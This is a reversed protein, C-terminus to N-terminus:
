LTELRLPQPDRPQREPQVDRSGASPLPGMVVPELDHQTRTQTAESQMRHHLDEIDQHPQRKDGKREAKKHRKRSQADREQKRKPLEAAAPGKLPEGAAEGAAMEAHPAPAGVLAPADAAEVEAVGGAARAAKPRRGAEICSRAAQVRAKGEDTKM